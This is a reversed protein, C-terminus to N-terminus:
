DNENRPANGGVWGGGGGGAKGWNRVRRSVEESWGTEIKVYIMDHDSNDLRGFELVETEREGIRAGFRKKPKIENLAL